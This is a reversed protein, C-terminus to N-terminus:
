SGGGANCGKLTSTSNIIDMPESSLGGESDVRYKISLSGLVFNIADAVPRPILYGIGGSMGVILTAEKCPIMGLDSGKFLGVSSNLAFFPGTAFGFAGVGFVVKMQHSLDLGSPAISIGGASQLMSQRASFGTPGFLGWKKASYGVKFSGNFTYDGTASITSNRVGLATKIIMQQRVTIALPVPGVGGLPLSYDTNPQLRGRVNAKLGVDTGAEFKITLGAAGSLGLTAEQLSGDDVKLKAILEPKSMHVVTELAVKLGGGDSTARLGIGDTGVKPVLKFNVLKSVDPVPAPAAGPQLTYAVPTLTANGSMGTRADAAKPATPLAQGPLDPATYAIAEGFDVPMDISIDAKRIIDTILVPGVTVSLNNGDKKVDLVRGVARNTLFIIKGEAVDGANPARADITWTMGTTSLARVADAGGGVIVVDPQYEVSPDPVPAIGYKLEAATMESRKIQHVSSSRVPDRRSCGALIGVAIMSVVFMRPRCAPLTVEIRLGAAEISSAALRGSIAKAEFSIDAERSREEQRCMFFVLASTM